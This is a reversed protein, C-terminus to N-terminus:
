VADDSECRRPHRAHRGHRHLNEIAEQYDRKKAGTMGRRYRTLAKGRSSFCSKLWILTNM